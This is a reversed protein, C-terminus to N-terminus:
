VFRCLRWFQLPSRGPARARLGDGAAHALGPGRHRLGQVGVCKIRRRPRRGGPRRWARRSPPRPRAPPAAVQPPKNAGMYFTVHFRQDCHPSKIHFADKQGTTEFARKKISPPLNGVRLTLDLAQAQGPRLRLTDPKIQWRAPNQARVTGEVVLGSDNTVRVRVKSPRGAVVGEVQADAPEVRLM